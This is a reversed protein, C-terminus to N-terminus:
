YIEKRKIFYTKRVINLNAAICCKYTYFHNTYGVLGNGEGVGIWKNSPEGM